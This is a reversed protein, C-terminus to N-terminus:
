VAEGKQRRRLFASFEDEEEEKPPLVLRCRSTITLGLDNACGRAQKFYRDQIGSWSGAGEEDGAAIAGAARKGAAVYQSRDVLFFGLVDRDLKSILGLDTLAARLENFETRLEKPLWGPAHFSGAKEGNRALADTELRRAKEAETMHSRGKGIVVAAAQRPGPM